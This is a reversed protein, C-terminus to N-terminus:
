TRLNVAMVPSGITLFGPTAIREGPPTAPLIKRTRTEPWIGLKRPLRTGPKGELKETEASAVKLCSPHYFHYFL